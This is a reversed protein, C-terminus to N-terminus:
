FRVAPIAAEYHEAWRNLLKVVKRGCAKLRPVDRPPKKDPLGLCRCRYRWLWPLYTATHSNVDITSYLRKGADLVEELTLFYELHRQAKDFAKKWALRAAWMRTTSPCPAYYSTARHENESDGDEDDGDEDEDENDEGECRQMAGLADALAQFSAWFAELKREALRSGALRRLYGLMLSLHEGWHASSIMASPCRGETPIGAPSPMELGDLAWAIIWGLPREGMMHAARISHGAKRPARREEAPRPPPPSVARRHRKPSVLCNYRLEDPHWLEDSRIADIDVPHGCKYLMSRRCTPCSPSRRPPKAQAKFWKQICDRHFRHGCPLPTMRCLEGDILCIPCSVPDKGNPHISHYQQALIAQPALMRAFAMSYKFTRPESFQLLPVVVTKGEVPVTIEEYPPNVFMAM